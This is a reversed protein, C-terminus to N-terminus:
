DLAELARRARRNEPDLRLAREFEARARVPDGASDIIHLTLPQVPQPSSGPQGGQAQSPPELLQSGMLVGRLAGKGFPTLPGSLPLVVGM